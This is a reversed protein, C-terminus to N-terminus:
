CTAHWYKGDLLRSVLLAPRRAREARQRLRVEKVRYLTMGVPTLTEPPEPCPNRAASLIVHGRADM